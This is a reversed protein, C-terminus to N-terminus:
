KRIQKFLHLSTKLRIRIFQINLYPFHVNETPLLKCDTFVTQKMHPFYKKFKYLDLNRCSHICLRTVNLFPRELYKSLDIDVDNFAIIKLSKTCYRDLYSILYKGCGLPRVIELSLILHGFSRLLRFSNRVNSIPVREKKKHVYNTNIEFPIKRFKFHFALDVSTKLHKSTEAINLIDDLDLYKIIKESCDDNIDTLSTSANLKRPVNITRHKM